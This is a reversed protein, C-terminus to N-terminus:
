EDLSCDHSKSHGPGTCKTVLGHVAETGFHKSAPSGFMLEVNSFTVATGGLVCVTLPSPSLASLTGNGTISAQGTVVFGGKVPTAYPQCSTEWDISVIGGTLNIHHTHAGRTSPDDKNVNAPSQVIGYDSTEMNLAASFDATGKKEDLTLTWTGRIEYPGGAISVLPPTATASATYDNILGSFHRPLPPPWNRDDGRGRGQGNLAAVSMALAIGGAILTWRTRKM